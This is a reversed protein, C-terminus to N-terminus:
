EGERKEEIKKKKGGKRKRRDETWVEKLVELSQWAVLRGGGGGVLQRDM